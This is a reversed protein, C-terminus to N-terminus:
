IRKVTRFLLTLILVIVSTVAITGGPASNLQYSLSLGIMVSALGAFISSILTKLFGLKLNLAAAVPIILVSTVVLLGIIRMSVGVTAGTLAALIYNLAKSSIGHVAAGTEDFTTYILEHYKFYIFLSTIILVSLIILIDERTVTLISGFLYQNISTATKGTSALIIAIGVNLTMVISIVIEQYSSYKNRLYEILLASIVTYILASAVPNFGFILGAAVGAFASHSLSDGVSSFRKLVIFNGLMPCLISILIGSLFAYRMYQYNFMSFM